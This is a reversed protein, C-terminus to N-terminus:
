LRKIVNPQGCYVSPPKTKHVSLRSDVTFQCSYAGKYNDCTFEILGMQGKSMPWTFSAKKNLTYTWYGADKGNEFRFRISAWDDVKGLKFHYTSTEPATIWTKVIRRGGKGNCGWGHGGWPCSHYPTSTSVAGSKYLKKNGGSYHNNSAGHWGTEPCDYCQKGIQRGTTKGVPCWECSKSGAATTKEAPCNLCSAHTQRPPMFTGGACAYPGTQSSICTFAGPCWACFTKPNPSGPQPSYKGSPCLECATGRGPTPSYRGNSCYICSTQGPNSQYYGARCQQCETPSLDIYGIPCDTCHAATVDITYKGTPCTKCSDKGSQDQFKGKGCYSCSLSGESEAFHGPNCSECKNRMYKDQFWGKPCEKCETKGEDDQYKGPECMNCTKSAKKSTYKGVSCSKCAVQQAERQTETYKGPQCDTCGNFSSKGPQCAACLPMAVGEWPMYATRTGFKYRKWGNNKLTRWHDMDPECPRPGWQCNCGGTIPNVIFGRGPLKAYSHGGPSNDLDGDGGCARWCRLMKEEETGESNWVLTEFPYPRYLSIKDWAYAPVAHSKMMIPCDVRAQANESWCRREGPAVTTDPPPPGPYALKGICPNLEKTSATNQENANTFCVGLKLMPEYYDVPDSTDDPVRGVPPAHNSWVLYEPYYQGLVGALWTVGIPGGSTWHGRDYPVEINPTCEGNFHFIPVNERIVGEIRYWTYDKGNPNATAANKNFTGEANESGDTGCACASGDSSIGVGSFGASMTIEIHSCVIYCDPLQLQSSPRNFTSSGFTEIQKNLEFSKLIM